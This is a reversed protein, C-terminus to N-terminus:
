IQGQTTNLKIYMTVPVQDAENFHKIKPIQDAENFHKIKPIQDAENFHM